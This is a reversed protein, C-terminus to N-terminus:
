SLRWGGFISNIQGTLWNSQNQIRSLALEMDVFRNIMREMKQDLRREMEVIRDDFDDIRGSVSEIRFDLYGDVTNTIDYLIRDFLEAVGMTIKVTGQEGTGSGTYKISLGEISTTEGTGPANGTLIQGSGTCAEGNITGAVDVGSYSQGDTMGLDSDSVRITFDHSSGYENHTLALQDGANKSATVDMSYRGLVGGVMDGLDVGKGAPEIIEIGLPSNTTGDKLLLRGDQIEAIVSGGGANFANEIATLLDDVTDTTIDSITYSGEVAKGGATYGSFSFTDGTTLSSGQIADWKTAADIATSGDTTNRTIAVLNSSTVDGFDLNSGPPATLSFDLNSNGTERDTIVLYGYSNIAASVENDFAAEIASLLGQVTDTSVDTITHSGSVETGNRKHGTFTIVDGDSLGAGIGGSFVSDWTTSNTIPATQEADTTNKVNGMLAQAYERDMESNITNVINDISSGTDSTKLTIAAVKSGQTITITSIDSAIGGSLDVTGTVKAQEPVQTINVPYEGPVTGNTHGIYQVDGDTTSGEAVFIRRAGAFNDVLADTFDNDDISLKGENNSTIGILSLANLDSPLGTITSVVANMLASKISHLTGDGQLPGSTGSDEDYAFQANLETMVENYADLLGQVSSKVAEYDRSIVVNVTTGAEVTLLNLTVGPIVDDIINTSSTITTGDVVISVDQGSRLEMQYGKTTASITGFDLQGGGENNAVLTLSLQSDGAVLDKIVIKGATHGDTGDSIYADVAGPDFVTNEIYNLLDNLSKYAGSYVSFSGSVATGDHKTGTITITDGTAVDNTGDGVTDIESFLTSGDIPGGGAAATKQNAVSGAHIESVSGQDGELIGLAQLVNNDDTFSTTNEIKLRYTTLNDQTTSVVSARVNSGAASAASNIDSAIDTLSKSLDIEISSVDGMVVATGVQPSSIGLLSAVSQSSSSFAESQAGNSTLNKVSTTGETFGLGSSLINETDASADFINLADEGTDDSTLILRFNESSVTLISATVGTANSGTNLNNIKDLIDALDDSSEVRVTRGNIIFEGTLNLATTHSTFSKSSIKRAQALQSNSTMTITHSGPAALTSTSVTLFNSAEYTASDSSLSSTFVSFADSSALTSAQTKLSLLKSNIDQLIELKAEYETKQAEVLDVRRHEVAMLQDIMSRWDFGSSLGAVLNTSLAM